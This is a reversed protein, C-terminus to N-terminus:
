LKKQMRKLAKKSQKLDCEDLDSLLLPAYSSVEQLAASVVDIKEKLIQKAESKDLAAKEEGFHKALEEQRPLLLDLNFWHEPLEKVEVFLSGYSNSSLKSITAKGGCYKDDSFLPTALYIHDGIKIKSKPM